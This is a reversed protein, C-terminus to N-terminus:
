QSATNNNPRAYAEGKITMRCWRIDQMMTAMPAKLVATLGSNPFYIMGTVNVDWGIVMVMIVPSASIM